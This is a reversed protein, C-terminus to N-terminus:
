QIHDPLLGLQSREYAKTYALELNRTFLETDFLPKTLRNEALKNKLVAVREPDSAISIALNEYEKQSSAVLEPLGIANLLSGGM